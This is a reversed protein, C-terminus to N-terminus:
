PAGGAPPAPQSALKRLEASAFRALQPDEGAEVGRLAQIAEPTAVRGLSQLAARAVRPEPDALAQALAPVQAAHWPERLAAAAEQRLTVDPDALRSAVWSALAPDNRAAAVRVLSRQESPALAQRTMARLAAAADFGPAGELLVVLALRTAGPLAGRRALEAFPAV